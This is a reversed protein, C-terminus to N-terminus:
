LEPARAMKYIYAWMVDFTQYEGICMGQVVPIVELGLKKEQILTRIQSVILLTSDSDDNITAKCHMIYLKLGRLPRRRRRSGTIATVERVLAEMEAIVHKPSLHGYLLADNRESTWSCELFISNLHDPILPAAAKWVAITQPKLSLTDPEVDGLFLFQRKTKDNSTLLYSINDSADQENRNALKPWIKGSFVGEIDELVNNLAAIRQRHKKPFTGASLVLGSIHDLHAHTIFYTHISSFIKTAAQIPSISHKFGFYPLLSPNDRFLQRLMGIGSGKGHAELAAVAQTRSFGMASLQKVPEVDDDVAPTVTGAGLFEAVPPSLQADLSQGQHKPQGRKDEKDKKDKKGFFRISLKHKSPHESKNETVKSNSASKSKPSSITGPPSSRPLGISVRPPRPPSAPRISSSYPTPSSNYVPRHDVEDSSRPFPNTTTGAAQPIPTIIHQQDEVPLGSPADKQINTVSAIPTDNTTSQIPFIDDFSLPAQRAVQPLETAPAVSTSASASSEGITTPIIPYAASFDEIKFGSPQAVAPTPVAQPESTPPHADDESAVKVFDFDDEFISNFRSNFTVDKNPLPMNHFGEDFDKVTATGPPSEHVAQGGTHHNDNMPSSPSIPISFPDDTDPGTSFLDVQTLQPQSPSAAVNGESNDFLDFDDQRPPAQTSPSDVKIDSQHTQSPTGNVGAMVKDKVISLPEEDSDSDSSDDDDEHEIEHLSPFAEEVFAPVGLSPKSAVAEPTLSRTSFLEPSKDIPPSPARENLSQITGEEEAEPPASPSKSRISPVSDIAPSTFAAFNEASISDNAESAPSSMARLILLDFPNTSQRSMPPSSPVPTPPIPVNAAIVSPVPSAIRESFEPTSEVPSVIPQSVTTLESIQTEALIKEKIIDDLESETAKVEKRIKSNEAEATALQKKAIALLGKQQRADKRLKELEAKMSETEAGVEKLKRQLERVEEKDRLLASQIDNREVKIASFESEATILEERTKKIDMQQTLTRERLDGLLKTETEFSAKATVLQSQLQALEDAQQQVNRETTQKETKIIELSRTTSALQNQLNGIEVSHDPVDAKTDEEDGLLDFTQAPLPSVPHSSSATLIPPPQQPQGQFQFQTAPSIPPHTIAAGNRSLLQNSGGTGQSQVIAPIPTDFLLDLDSSVANPFQLQSSSPSSSLNPIGNGALKSNIIRMAVAFGERTLRGDNNIDALDWIQALDTSPLGSKVMFPVAVDAEIYGQRQTDLQEFVIDSATKTQPFSEGQASRPQISGTPPRPSLPVQQGTHQPRVVASGPLSALQGTHQKSIPTSAQVSASSGTFSNGTPHSIVGRSSDPTLSAQEYLSHPLTTPLTFSPSAMCAQLFYMGIIFDSADLSGRVKTDALNWIQSLKEVPLKSKVFIDRAKDSSLLGNSPGCSVFLKLFKTKDQQSLPPLTTQSDSAVKPTLTSIGEIIALPGPKKLLKPDSVSQGKQAYGILRLAVAVGNRTLFGNNEQDSLAWIEGLVSTSLNAGSLVKVAADGTIIGLSQPDAISFIASILSTEEPTPNVTSM